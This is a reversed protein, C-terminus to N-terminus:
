VSARLDRLAHALWTTGSGDRDTLVAGYGVHLMQRTGPATVLEVLDADATAGAEPAETLDASVTYSARAARYAERSVRYIERFLDPEDQAALALAELYSTGSTKLHVM